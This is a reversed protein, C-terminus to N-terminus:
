QDEDMGGSRRWADIPGLQNKWDRPQGWSNSMWKVFSAGTLDDLGEAEVLGKEQTIRYRRDLEKVFDDTYFGDILPSFYEDELRELYLYADFADQYSGTCAWDASADFPEGGFPSGSLPFAAPKYDIAKFASDFLGRGVRGYVNGEGGLVPSHQMIAYCQNGLVQSLRWGATKIVSADSQQKLNKAAHEYGVIFLGHRPDDSSHAFLDKLINNAMLENRDDEYPRWDSQKNILKWPRQMDVLVIRVRKDKPLNQNTKWVAVFFDLMAQDPWGMWLNDRLMQIVPTTDLTESALFRDVLHQDNSPLELYVVGASKAFREDSVVDSNLKWYTPRHHIEGVITLKHDALSKLLFEKPDQASSQLFDVFPKLYNEPYVAKKRYTAATRKEGAADDVIKRAAELTDAQKNGANLWRGGDFEFTRLDVSGSQPWTAIVYAITDSVFRVEVITAGLWGQAARPSVPKPAPSPAPLRPGMRPVSLSQWNIDGAAVHRHITAYALEPKSLDDGAPLDAVTKNIPYVQVRGSDQMMDMSQALLSPAVTTLLVLVIVRCHYTRGM